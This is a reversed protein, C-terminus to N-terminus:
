EYKLQKTQNRQNIAYWDIITWRIGFGEKSSGYPYMALLILPKMGKVFTNPRTQNRPIDAM